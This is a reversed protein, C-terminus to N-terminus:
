GNLIVLHNIITSSTWFVHILSTEFFTADKGINDNRIGDDCLIEQKRTAIGM